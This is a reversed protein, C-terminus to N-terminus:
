EMLDDDPRLDGARVRTGDARILEHNRTVAFAQGNALTVTILDAPDVRYHFWDTIARPGDFGTKLDRSSVADSRRNRALYGIPVKVPVGLPSLVTILTPGVFCGAAGGKAPTEDMSYGGSGRSQLKSEASHHLKMFFRNGTAVGRIKKATAPDVLDDTGTLGHNALEAMVHATLDPVDLFNDVKYPRGTKTAIKGLWAELLQAPNTNGAVQVKGNRRTVVFGTPVTPCFVLGDYPEVSWQERCLVAAAVDTAADIRESWDHRPRPGPQVVPIRFDGAAVQEVTLKQWQNAYPPPGPAFEIVDPDPRTYADAWFSHGPTVLFDAEPGAYRYMPGAYEAVYFKAAQEYLHLGPKWPHYCYLLDDDQVDIGLKWGAPTLFETEEDYCRSTIGLNNALVEYPQGDADHPMEDDPLIAAVVGKDGYRGSNMSWHTKDDRKTYVIHNPVTVCHVDGVYSVMAEENAAYSKARGKKWWPRLHHKNIRGRWHPRKQWNDTRDQRRVTVAWGLKLCIVQIDAALGESSSGYEWSRGEPTHGDGALYADLFVRLQRPCLTQVYDPVRKTYSDGLPALHTYLSGGPLEFRQDGENYRFSFGLTTLNDHIKQWSPSSRFQAVKVTRQGNANNYACWGESLYYGLFELWADAPVDGIHELSFTPRESGTWRCDKKFRWEGKAAYFDDALVPGYPSGPRAVWLRHNPTVLMNVHKTNLYYMPGNYAFRHIHTPRQYELEDTAPNLTALEDDLTVDGVLKWGHRTLLWTSPDFCMKDGVQMRADAKVVVVPGTKGWAVDTVVGPDHHKWTLSADDFGPQRKKHLKTQPRDREKTALVLPDGYRVTSGPRIVGDAGIRDLAERGYQGAFLGLYQGKGVQHKDSVELDHQYMHTSTFKKAMSQSIVLADEYNLGKWPMYAVRANVGVATAGSDDTYNSKALLQGPAFTDGPAVMPTQHYFTKRAFPYNQYLEVQDRRGDDYRLQLVGDAYGEVRGGQDARVAGTQTGYEEEFSRQGGSGPLAGQVLPAEPRVLPLAQTLMRSAMAVRQGKVAGLMPVLNALPSFAADMDPLAYEIESKPVYAIKGAKMVPVRKTPWREWDPFAVAADALDRPSKWELQGTRPNAFQTYITGDRGKRAGRAMNLDIGARFSEPTRLPDLFGYHAPQVARASEPVSDLSPLGGEGMRTIRGQKDFVELPNIEEISQALGSGTLVQEVQPTMLGSPMRKLNGDRLIQRFARHQLRGHDQAIRERVLDEPGVFRQYAPHDRDDAEAEGRGVALLRRTAALIADKGLRDYPAGLTRRSIEPEIEMREFAAALKKPWSTEDPDARDDWALVKDKLKKLAAADNVKANAAFIEPGWADRLDRDTAGLAALLPMLPVEAQHIKIKFVGKSPDLLYRHSTGKGPLLNAHSELEDNEKVRTYVGPRLRQQHNITYANGRFTLTGMSDYYPVRAIVQDRRDRVAGTLNDRLEWTGKLRRGVTEGTLIAQKRAKRSFRDPDIYRVNTLQLTHRDDGVPALAAAAAQVDDYLFQRTKATDGFGRFQTPDPAAPPPPPRLVAAYRDPVLPALPPPAAGAAPPPPTAAAPDPDLPPM